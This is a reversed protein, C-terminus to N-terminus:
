YHRWPWKAERCCAVAILYGLLLHISGAVIWNWGWFIVELNVFVALLEKIKAKM